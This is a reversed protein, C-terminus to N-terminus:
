YRRKERTVIGNIFNDIVDEIDKKYQEIEKDVIVKIEDM